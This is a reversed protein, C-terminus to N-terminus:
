KDKAYRNKAYERAIFARLLGGTDEPIERYQLERAQVEENYTNDGSNNQLAGGTNERKKDEEQRQEGAQEQQASQTQANQKDDKEDDSSQSQRQQGSQPENNDSDGNQPQENQQEGGDNQQPAASQQQNQEQEQEDNQEDQQPSSQQEQQQRKLYELNFRADEHKPNMQLVQEYKKVAEDTKGMKALANGQNYLGTEDTSSSYKQYAKDYQGLRYYAAAQWNKDSFRRAAEQYDEQGFARLGEQDANLFFGAQAPFSVSLLLLVALIGRRFMYLCCFLPVFVLYWGCDLWQSVKNESKKLESSVARNIQGALSGIQATQLSQGGGSAAIKQLKDNEKASVNVVDVTYGASAAASSAHLAAAFNQGVDAAFVVIRGRMWGGSKLSDVALRLALDLRDGNEPMIDFDVAPLLNEIIRADNSVPSILFPEGAYVILGTQAEGLGSLLDSVAYRARALRNPTVDKVAMDSSLNLVIMLPNEATMSEAEQRIWSPGAAAIVAFFMGIGCLYFMLRRQLSSGRVLLYSLLNGDCVKEWSSVTEMRSFYRLWVAAPLALLLLCWPRLFHFNQVFETM